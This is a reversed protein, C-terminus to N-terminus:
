PINEHKHRYTFYYLSNSINLFFTNFFVLPQQLTINENSNKHIHTNLATSLFINNFLKITHKREHSDLLLNPM